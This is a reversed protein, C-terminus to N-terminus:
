GVVAADVTIPPQVTRSPGRASVGQGQERQDQGKEYSEEKLEIYRDVAADVTGMQRILCGLHLVDDMEAESYMGKQEIELACRWRRVTRPCPEIGYIQFYRQAIARNFEAGTMAPRTRDHGTM